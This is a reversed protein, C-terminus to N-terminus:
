PLPNVTFAAPCNIMDPDKIETKPTKYPECITVDGTCPQHKTETSLYPNGGAPNPSFTSKSCMGYNFVDVDVATESKEIITATFAVITRKYECLQIPKKTLIVDTVDILKENECVYVAIATHQSSTYYNGEQRGQAARDWRTFYCYEHYIYAPQGALIAPYCPNWDYAFTVNSMAALTCIMWANFADQDDAPPQEGCGTMCPDVISSDFIPISRVNANNGLEFTSMYSGCQQTILGDNNFFGVNNTAYNPSGCLCPTGDPCNENDCAEYIKYQEQPCDPRPQCKENKAGCCNVRALCEGAEGATKSLTNTTPDLTADYCLGSCKDCEDNYDVVKCGIVDNGGADECLKGCCIKSRCIVTECTDWPYWTYVVGAPAGAQALAMAAQTTLGAVCESSLIVTGAANYTTKCAAGCKSSNVECVPSWVPKPCRVDTLACLNVGDIICCDKKTKLSVSGDVGVCRGNCPEVCVEPAQKNICQFSGDPCETPCPTGGCASAGGFPTWTTTNGVGFRPTATNLAECAARGIDLQPSGPTLNGDGINTVICCIGCQEGDICSTDFAHTVVSGCGSSICNSDDPGCCASRTKCTKIAYPRTATALETCVGKCSAKDPSVPKCAANPITVEQDVGDVTVIKKCKTEVCALKTDGCAACTGFPYWIGFNAAQCATQNDKTDDCSLSALSGDPNLNRKCCTGCLEGDACENPWSHSPTTNGEPCFGAVPACKENQEGCCDVKTACFPDGDKVGTEDIAYCEGRCPDDCAGRDKDIAVCITQGPCIEDNCCLQPICIASSCTEFAKWSANDGRAICEEYSEEECTSSIPAGTADLTIVCCIGCLQGNEFCGSWEFEPATAGGGEEGTGPCGRCKAGDDGCCEPKTKCEGKQTSVNFCRGKCPDCEDNIDVDICGVDDPCKEGCCRKTGCKAAACDKFPKWTYSIVYGDEQQAEDEETLKCDAAKTISEVCTAELATAGATADSYVVRCCAGCLEPDTCGNDTWSHTANNGCSSECNEGDAGCCDSYHACTKNGTAIELCTGNCLDCDAVAVEVCVTDTKDDECTVERCCPTIDGCDACTGFPFWAGYPKMGSLQEILEECDAQTEKTEDCEIGTVATGDDNYINKCCVGCKSIDACGEEWRYQAVVAGCQPKCNIDNDGCCDQRSKCTARPCKTPNDEYEVEICRGLCPDCETAGTPACLTEREDGRVTDQCCPPNCINLNDTGNHWVGRPGLPNQTPDYILYRNAKCEDEPIDRRGTKSLSQRFTPSTADEDYNHECCVACDTCPMATWDNAPPIITKSGSGAPIFRADQCTAECTTNDEACCQTITACIAQRDDIVESGDDEYTKIVCRAKCKDTPTPQAKKSCRVQACDPVEKCVCEGNCCCKDPEDEPSTAFQAGNRVLRGGSIVLKKEPPFCDHCCEAITGYPLSISGGGLLGFDFNRTCDTTSFGAGIVICSSKGVPEGQFNYEIVCCVSKQDPEAPLQACSAM